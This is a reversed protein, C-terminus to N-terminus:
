LVRGAPHRARIGTEEVEDELMELQELRALEAMALKTGPQPEFM